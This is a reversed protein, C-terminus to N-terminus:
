EAKGYKSINEIFEKRAPNFIDISKFPTKLINAEHPVGGPIVCVDGKELFKAVEGYKIEMTGELVITIQEHEHSHRALEVNEKIDFNCVTINESSVLKMDCKDGLIENYSEVWNDIIM